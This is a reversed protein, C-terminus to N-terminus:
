MVIINVMFKNYAQLSRFLQMIFFILKHAKINAM